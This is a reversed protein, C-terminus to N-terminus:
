LLAAESIPIQISYLLKNEKSRSYSWSTWAGNRLKAKGLKNEDDIRIFVIQLHSFDPPVMFFKPYKDKWDDNM